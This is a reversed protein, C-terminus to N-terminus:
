KDNFKKLILKGLGAADRWYSGKGMWNCYEYRETEGTFWTDISVDFGIAHGEAYEGTTQKKMRVEVVYGMTMGALNVTKTAVAQCRGEYDYVTSNYKYYEEFGGDPNILMYYKGSEFTSFGIEQEAEIYTESLWLNVVDGNCVDIDTVVALFYLYEEDWMISVYGHSEPRRGALITSSYENDTYLKSAKEWSEDIQGDIVPKENAYVVSPAFKVEIEVNAQINNIVYVDNVVDDLCNKGDVSFAELYCGVEAKLTVPVNSGREGSEAVTASGYLATNPGYKVNTVKISYTFVYNPDEAECISCIGEKYDHEESLPIEEQEVLTDGCVTCVKGDTLGTEKCTASKGKVVKETHIESLPIEEQEVLTDGCVTCVKGDTLGTEKCTASKGKVIKETHEESLPIEEQEVLTEGCISCIKGETLGTEKCTADKGQVIQETHTHVSTPENSENQVSSGDQSCAGVVCCFCLVSVLTIILKKIKM